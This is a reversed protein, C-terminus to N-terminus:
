ELIEACEQAITEDFENHKDDIYFSFKRIFSETTERELEKILQDLHDLERLTYCPNWSLSNLFLQRAASYYQLAHWNEKRRRRKDAESSLHGSVDNLLRVFLAKEDNFFELHQPVAFKDNYVYGFAWDYCKLIDSCLVYLFLVDPLLQKQKRSLITPLIEKAFHESVIISLSRTLEITMNLYEFFIDTNDVTFLACQFPCSYNDTTEIFYKSVPKWTSDINYKSSNYLILTDINDDKIFNTNTNIM